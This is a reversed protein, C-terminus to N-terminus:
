PLNGKLLDRCRGDTIQLYTKFRNLRSIVPTKPQQPSSYLCLLLRVNSKSTVCTFCANLLSPADRCAIPLYLEKSKERCKSRLKFNKDILLVCKVDWATLLHPTEVGFSLRAGQQDKCCRTHRRQVKEFARATLRRPSARMRSSRSLAEMKMIWSM